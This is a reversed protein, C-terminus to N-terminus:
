PYPEDELLATLTRHHQRDLLDHSLIAGQLGARGRRRPTDAVATKGLWTVRLIRLM